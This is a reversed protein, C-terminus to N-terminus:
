WIHVRRREVCADKLLERILNNTWMLSLFEVIFYRSNAEEQEVEETYLKRRKRPTREKPKCVDCFWDGEPVKQENVFYIM